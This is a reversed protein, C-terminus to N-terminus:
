TNVLISLIVLRAERLFFVSRAELGSTSNNASSCSVPKKCDKSRVQGLAHQAWHQMKPDLATIITLGGTYFTDKGVMNIVKERVAEAYYQATIVASRNRKQVTILSEIAEKAIAATIYNDRWMIM